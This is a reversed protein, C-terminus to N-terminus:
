NCVQTMATTTDGMWTHMDMLIVMHINMRTDTATDMARYMATDMVKRTDMVMHTDMVTRTDM